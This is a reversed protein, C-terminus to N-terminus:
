LYVCGREWMENGIRKWLVTRSTANITPMHYIVDTSQNHM